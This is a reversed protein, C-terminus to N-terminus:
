VAAGALNRIRPREVGVADVNALTKQGQFVKVDDSVAEVLDAYKRYVHVAIVVPKKLRQDACPRGDDRNFVVRGKARLGNGDGIIRGEVPELLMWGAPIM